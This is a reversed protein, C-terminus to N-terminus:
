PRYAVFSGSASRRFLTLTFPVKLTAWDKREVLFESAVKMLMEAPEIWTGWREALSEAYLALLNAARFSTSVNPTSFGLRYTTLM